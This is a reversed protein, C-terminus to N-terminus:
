IFSIKNNNNDIVISDLDVTTSLQGLAIQSYPPLVLDTNLFGTFVANKDSTTTRLLRM